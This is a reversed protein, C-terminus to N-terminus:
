MESLRLRLMLKKIRRKRLEQAIRDIEGDVYARASINTGDNAPISVASVDFIKKIIGYTITRTKEDFHMTKYDPLFGWSMKTIMKTKIDDYLQRAGDTRGLDAGIRLGGDDFELALSKNSLRAYVRGEHNYQMIVDSMDCGNFNERSFQEYVATGDAEDGWLKYRDWTLAYGEVYHEAPLLKKTKETETLEATMTM